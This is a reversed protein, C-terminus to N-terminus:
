RGPAREWAGWHPGVPLPLFDAEILKKTVPLGLIENEYLVVSGARSVATAIQTDSLRGSVRGLYTDIIFYGPVLTRETELAFDPASTFLFDSRQRLFPLVLAAASSHEPATRFSLETFAIPGLLALAFAAIRLARDWRTEYLEVIKVALLVSLFPLPLALYHRYFTNFVAVSTILGGVSLLALTRRMRESSRALQWVALVTAPLLPPYRLLAMGLRLTRDGLGDRAREGQARIVWEVFGPETAFRAGLPVLVLLAGLAVFMRRKWDPKSAPWLLEALALLGAPVVAVLKVAIAAGLLVGTWFGSVSRKGLLWIVVGSIFFANMLPELRMTRGLNAIWVLGAFYLSVALLGALAKGSIRKALLYLPVCSGLTLLVTLWRTAALSGRGIIWFLAAVLAVMPPHALMFDRYPRQGEAILKGAYVYIGEDADPM